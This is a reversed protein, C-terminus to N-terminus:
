ATQQAWASHSFSESVELATVHMTPSAAYLQPTGSTEGTTNHSSLVPVPIKLTDLALSCRLPMCSFLFRQM